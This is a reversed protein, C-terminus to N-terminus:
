QDVLRALVLEVNLTLDNTWSPTPPLLQSLGRVDAGPQRERERERQPHPHLTFASHKGLMHSVKVKFGLGACWDLGGFVFEKSSRTEVELSTEPPDTNWFDGRPRRM